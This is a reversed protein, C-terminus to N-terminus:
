EPAPWVEGLDRHMRESLREIDPRFRDWLRQRQVPTLDPRPVARGLRERAKARLRQAWSFPLRSIMMRGIKFWSPVRRYEDSANIRVAEECALPKVSLHRYVADMVKHPHQIFEEFVTLLWQDPQTYADYQEIQYAYRSCHFLQPCNDLATEFPTHPAIWGHYIAHRYHSVAREIPHRMQYILKVGPLKDAIRFPIHPEAPAWTYSPSAEGKVQASDAAAFKSCYWNWGRDWQHHSFYRLEKEPPIYVDPHRSLIGALSTTGAKEAGIILFDPKLLDKTKNYETNM